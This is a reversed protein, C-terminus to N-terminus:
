RPPTWGMPTATVRSDLRHPVPNAGTPAYGTIGSQAWEDAYYWAGARPGDVMVVLPRQPDYWVPLPQEREPSHDTV